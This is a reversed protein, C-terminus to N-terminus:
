SERFFFCHTGIQIRDGDRLKHTTIRDGNVYTGNGSSNDSISFGDEGFVIQAHRRSVEPKDLAISNEATRGITTTPGLPFSQGERGEEEMVLRGHAAYITGFGGAEAAASLSRAEDVSVVMTGFDPGDPAAAPVRLAHTVMEEPVSAAPPPPPPPAPPEPLAPIVELFSQSIRDAEDFDAQSAALAQQASKRKAEFEAESLEGIQHRFELESQDLQAGDLKQKLQTHLARLKAFESRAKQRLARAQDELAKLRTAYDKMVRTYIPAAVKDKSTNANDVLKQVGEADQKIKALAAVDTTDIKELEELM